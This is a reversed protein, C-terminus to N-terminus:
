LAAMEREIRSLVGPAYLAGSAAHRRVFDALEWAAQQAEAKKNKGKKTQHCLNQWYGLRLLLEVSIQVRKVAEQHRREGRGAVRAIAQGLHELAPRLVLPTARRTYGLDYHFVCGGLQQFHEHLIEWFALMDEAAPGYLAAYYDHLAFAINVDPTWSLQAILQAHQGYPGWEEPRYELVFGEVGIDRYYRWEHALLTLLPYPVSLMDILMMYEFVYLPSKTQQRWQELWLAYQAQPRRCFESEKLPHRFCRQFPAFYLKVNPRLTERRPPEVYNLYALASLTLHPHEQAVLEAVANVFRIYTDTRRPHAPWLSSPEPPENALCQSCECWGFGDNPWLGVTDIEPHANVLAGIREAVIRIVEPHSTCLQGRPSREGNVFAFYEPHAAFFEEPPLFFRFSHHGLEVPLGRAQTESQLCEKYFEFAGPSNAFIMFRNFRQKVLWDCMSIVRSDMPSLCTFARQCFAPVFTRRERPVSFTERRPIIAGGEWEHLWRCGAYFELFHYVAHLVSLPNQGFLIIQQPGIEWGYADSGERCQLLFSRAGAKALPFQAGTIIALNRALEEAAFSLRKMFPVIVFETHKQSAITVASM